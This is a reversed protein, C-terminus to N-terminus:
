SVTVAFGLDIAVADVVSILVDPRVDTAVVEVLADIVAASWVVVVVVVVSVATVTAGLVLIVLVLLEM